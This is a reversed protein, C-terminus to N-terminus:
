SAGSAEAYIAQDEDVGCPWGPRASSAIGDVQNGYRM